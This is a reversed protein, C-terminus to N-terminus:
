NKSTPAPRQSSGIGFKPGKNQVTTICNEYNGPGPVHTPKLNPNTRAGKGMSFQPSTEKNYFNNTTNYSGPAPMDKKRQAQDATNLKAHMSIHKGDARKPLNYNNPAPVFKTEERSM